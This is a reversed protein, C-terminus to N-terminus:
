NSFGEFSKMKFRYNEPILTSCKNEYNYAICVTSGTTCIEEHGNKTAALAYDITFSKNGIGSTKVYALLEDHLMIPKIFTIEAKAIIIGMENLDWKLIESWYAARAIEFYTLYLANNVHGFSDIDAFRIPISTKFHFGKLTKIESNLSM